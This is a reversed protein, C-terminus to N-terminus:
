LPPTEPLIHNLILILESQEGSEQVCGLRQGGFSVYSLGLFYIRYQQLTVDCIIVNNLRKARHGM